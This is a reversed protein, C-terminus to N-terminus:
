DNFTYGFRKLIPKWFEITLDWAHCGFPLENKNIAFAREPHFEVSFKLAKKYGPIKLNKRKRNVEVSWFVDENFLHLERSNYYDIKDRFKICLDHFKQTRRLSFGGNGVKYEFQKYSPEGNIQIDYRTHIYYQINRKISKFFSYDVARIWPAGIYDFGQDCWYNLEDKFVFADLQYVLIYKYDLFANYFVNDLMLRNYGQISNFYSNSFSVIKFFPHKAHDATLVLRDPKIAIIPYDALVKFCQELAIKEFDTLQDKYFPIIVAVKKSDNM